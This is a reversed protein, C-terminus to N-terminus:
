GVRLDESADDLPSGEWWRPKSRDGAQGAFRCCRMGMQLMMNRKMKVNIEMKMNIHINMNRKIDTDTRMKM